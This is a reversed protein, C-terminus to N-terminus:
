ESKQIGAELNAIKRMLEDEAKKIQEDPVKVERLKIEELFKAAEMTLEKLFVDNAIREDWKIVKQEDTELHWALFNEEVLLEEITEFSKNKM